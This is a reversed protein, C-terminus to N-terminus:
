RETQMAVCDERAADLRTQGLVVVTLVIASMAWTWRIMADAADHRGARRLERTEVAAGVPISTVIILLMWASVSGGIADPALTAGTLVTTLVTWVAAWRISTVEEEGEEKRLPLQGERRKRSEHM